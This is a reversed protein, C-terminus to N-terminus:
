LWNGVIVFPAWFHPRSDRKLLVLEAQRMAEAVSQGQQLQRYFEAILEATSADNVQWLTAVTTRVNAGAAVGALGLAARSNGQATECASLVLIEIVESREGGEIQLLRDFDRVKILKDWALIFTEEPNSSFQGHTAIHVIPFAASDIKQELETDIFLEDLLPKEPSQSVTQVTELEVPVASLPMFEKGEVKQQESIGASVVRLQTQRSRPDFLQRSPILAIAYKQILYEGQNYLVGMPLNRLSGDLVFVLTKIQANSALDSELPKILWNYFKQADEIVKGTRDARALNQQVRMATEELEKQSVPTTHHRLSQGPLKYIIELRNPLIIPSIFAATEDVEGAIEEAQVRASLDCGLFNELEALRLSDLASLAKELPNIEASKALGDSSLLLDVLGRYVLEVDDRFSFQVDAAVPLLDQRVAEIAKISRNYAAIAADPQKQKALLRGLQWEWRYNIEPAHLEQSLQLAQETLKQAEPYQQNQEYIEGLQGKAYAQAVPDPLKQAQQMATAVIQAIERWSIGSDRLQTAEEITIRWPTDLCTLNKADFVQKLCTLSKAFNLQAYISSRSPTKKALLPKIKPLLAQAAEKQATTVYLHLLNLQGQLRVESKDSNVAQRYYQSAQSYYSHAEQNKYASKLQQDRDQLEGIENLAVAREALAQQVSGLELASLATDKSLALSKELVSSADELYGVRRLAIGLHRLGTAKLESDPQKQLYHQVQQLIEAASSHLGQGQLAQAQNIKSSVVGSDNGALAYNRAANEWSKRATELNGQVWQLRGQANLTKALTDHYAQSTPQNQLLKLSTNIADEAEQWQRLYQYALSLNSHVLAQNLEDGQTTFATEAKEWAEVAASYQQTQYYNIGQQLLSPVNSHPASIAPLILSTSLSVIALCLYKFLHRQLVM